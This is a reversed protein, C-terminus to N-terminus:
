RDQGKAGRKKKSAKAQEAPVPPPELGGKEASPVDDPDRYEYSTGDGTLYLNYDSLDAGMIEAAMEYAERSGCEPVNINIVEGGKLTMEGVNRGIDEDAWRYTITQEPYKKSLLTIIKPVSNWATFFEVTDSDQELPSSGYANWKTGWNRNCWEYWTPSGFRQINNYAQEGLAWTAPDAMRKERYLGQCQRLALAYEAPTLGPKQRELDALVSHYERVLKLGRDTRTGSEMDLEKPMPLLKNFDFSGLPESEMRMDHLMRQFAALAASDSGFTIQNTINNPM